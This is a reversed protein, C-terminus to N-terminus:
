VSRSWGRRGAMASGGGGCASERIRGKEDFIAESEFSAEGFFSFLVNQHATPDKMFLTRTGNFAVLAFNRPLHSWALSTGCRGETSQASKKETGDELNTRITAKRRMMKSRDLYECDPSRLRLAELGTYLISVM